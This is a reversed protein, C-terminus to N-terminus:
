SLATPVQQTPVQPVAQRNMIISPDGGEDVFEKLTIGNDQLVNLFINYGEDGMEQMVKVWTDQGRPADSPHFGFSDHIPNFTKMDGMRNAVERLVYADMQHAMFAALGRGALKTEPTRVGLDVVRGDGLPVPTTKFTPTEKFSYSLPVGDKATVKVETDGRERVIQSVTESFQLYQRVEPFLTNMERVLERSMRAYMNTAYTSTIAENPTEYRLGGANWGGRMGEATEVIFKGDVEKVRRRTTKESKVDGNVDYHADVFVAGDESQMATAIDPDITILAPDAGVGFIEADGAIDELVKKFAKKRSDFEAAYLYTGIPGKFLKRLKSTPLDLAALEPIREAVGLAPRIYIDAAEGTDPDSNALPLLGTEKLIKANGMLMGVNQYANNKADLQVIFDTSYNEAMDAQVDDDMLLDTDSLKSKDKHRERSWAVMDKVEHAANLVQFFGEGDDIMEQIGTSNGKSSKMTNRGMPDDAFRVLKDVLDNDFIASRRYAPALKDYGLLNGLGHMLMKLGNEGGLAHREPARVLGKMMDGAQTHALGNNSYIRGNRGAKWEQSILNSPRDDSKGLQYTLQAFTRFPSQDPKGLKNKPFLVQGITGVQKSGTGTMGKELQTLMGDHIAVKTHRLQNLINLLPTHEGTVQDNPIGKFAKFAGNSLNTPTYDVEPGDLPVVKDQWKVAKAIELRDKLPGAPFELMVVNPTKGDETKAVKQDHRLLTNGKKMIRKVQGKQEMKDLATNVIRAAVDVPIDNEASYSDVLQNMTLHASAQEYIMREVRGEAHPPLKRMYDNLSDRYNDALDNFYDMEDLREDLRNALTKRKQREKATKPVVPEKADQIETAPAKSEDLSPEEPTKPNKLKDLAKDAKTKKPEPAVDKNAPKKRTAKKKKEALAKEKQDEVPDVAQREIRVDNGIAALPTMNDFWFKKQVPDDAFITDLGERLTSFRDSATMDPRNLGETLMHLSAFQNSPMKGQVKDLAAVVKKYRIDGETAKQKRRSTTTKFRDNTMKAVLDDVNVVTEAKPKKPTYPQAVYDPNAKQRVLEQLKFAEKKNARFWDPDNQFRQVVQPDIVGEQALAQLVPGTESPKLGTFHQMMRYTEFGNGEPIKDTAFMQQTITEDMKRLWSQKQLNRDTAAQKIASTEAQKAQKAAAKEAQKVKSVELLIDDATRGNFEVPKVGSRDVSEVFRKVRSRRNTLRDVGRATRNIGILPAMTMAPAGSTLGHAAAFAGFASNNRPDTLDLKKTLKSFGGVDGDSGKTFSQITDIEKLVSQLRAVDDVEPMARRLRELAYDSTTSGQHSKIKGLANIAATAERNTDIKALKRLDRSLLEAEARAERLAANAAGKASGESDTNVNGIVAMDQDAHNKIRQAASAEEASFEGSDYRIKDSVVKPAKAVGETTKSVAGGVLFSETLRNGIEEPVYEGGQIATNGIILGEQAAEQLGEKTFSLTFGAGRGMPLLEVLGSAVATGLDSLTADPDVGKETKEQRTEGLAQLTGALTAVGGVTLAVPASATAALSAVAGTGVSPASEAGAYVLSKAAEVPDLEKINKWVGDANDPRQYNRRHIDANNEEVQSRGAEELWNMGTMEGLSQLGGGINRGANDWGYTLAGGISDDAPNQIPEQAGALETQLRRYEAGLVKVHEDNGAEHAAMIGAELRKLQDSM